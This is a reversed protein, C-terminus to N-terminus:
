RQLWGTDALIERVAAEREGGTREFLQELLEEDPREGEDLLDELLTQVDDLFQERRSAHHGRADKGADVLKTKDHVAWAKLFALAEVPPWILGDQQTSMQITEELIARSVFYGGRGTPRGRVIEVEALGAETPLAFKVSTYDKRGRVHESTARAFAIVDEYTPIAAEGDLTFCAVLDIDKTTSAADGFGGLGLYTGGIPMLRWHDPMQRQVEGIVEGIVERAIERTVPITDPWDDEPM